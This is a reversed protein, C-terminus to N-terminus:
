LFINQLYKTNLTVKLTHLSLWNKFEYCFMQIILQIIFQIILQIIIQIIMQIIMQISLKFLWKSYDIQIILKFLWISNGSSYSNSYDNSYDIQIILKFLWISYDFQIVVLIVIQIIM